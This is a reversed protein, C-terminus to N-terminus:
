PTGSILGDDDSPHPKVPVPRWHTAPALQLGPLSADVIFVGRASGTVGSPRNLGSVLTQCHHSRLCLRKVKHNYTDAILLGEGQAVDDLAVDDLAVDLPHQLRVVAGTGDQDGYDFLAGSGCLTEVRPHTGLRVRRISSTESDAVYLCQGDTALGSPQAFAVVTRDGDVCGEAGTGLYTELRQRKLDMVWIQHAGAMAIYLQQEVLALDWPSNLPLGKGLGGHPFIARSQEGNGALTQVRQQAFDIQRIAHNGADAIYLVQQATDWTMGQPQQFQATQFDGDRLGAAGTGVYHQLTGSLDTVVIRHHGTDAIFLQNAQALIKGPFKLPPDPAPCSPAPPLSAGSIRATMVGNVGDVLPDLVQQLQALSREGSLQRVIYGQQDIFVLTPWARVAYAQWLQLGVDVVVPHTIGFQAIAQQVSDPSQEADFKASHIGIIVLQDDYRQEIQQLVPMMHQCNICGQTWFKLLVGRGKLDSLSLPTAVNLWPLDPSIQPSRVRM